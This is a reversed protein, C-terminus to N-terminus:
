RFYIMSGPSKLYLVINGDEVAVGKVWFPSAGLAVNAATLDCGTTLTCQDDYCRVGEAASIKVVVNKQSGLIVNKGTLDLVPAAPGTFNFGLVAGDALSLAGAPAVTGSQAVELTAGSAITIAGTSLNMEPNIALTAPASVNVPYSCSTALTPGDFNALLRGTGIVNMTGTREVLGATGDGITITHPNGDAGTTNFTIADGGSGIKTSITFDADLPQIEPHRGGNIWFNRSGGIGHDGIIWNAKGAAGGCLRFAWLDTNGTANNVLGRAQVAGEGAVRSHFVYGTMEENAVIDGTVVFRGGAAVSEVIYYYESGSYEIGSNLTVVSNEGVAIKSTDTIAEFEISGTFTVVETGMTATGFAGLSYDGSVAITVNAPAASFDLSEGVSPVRGDEWSEPDDFNCNQDM